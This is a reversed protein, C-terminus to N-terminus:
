IHTALCLQLSFRTSPSPDIQRDCTSSNIGDRSSSNVVSTHDHKSDRSKAAEVLLPNSSTHGYELAVKIRAMFNCMVPLMKLINTGSVNEAM